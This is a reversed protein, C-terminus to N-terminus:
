SGAVVRGIRVATEGKKPRRTPMILVSGDHPAYVPTDGDWALLTGGRAISQLGTAPEVFRFADTAITVVTTIEIVTQPEPPANGLNADVFAPDLVDLHRLFRLTTERAVEPAKKEWHQGCEVLLANRPSAPDVFDRYDRLRTGAAHGGDLVVHAPFGVARALAFGKQAPGALLLPTNDELMSHIDLLYDISRYLPRLARARALEASRRPGDLVEDSWLRNFDEDVCRSAFPNAADFRLFADVNAFALSLRGRAPRVGSDLLWDVVVAGCVENGHTLAQVLVHPGPRGSDFTWAYPVGANGAAWRRVDPFSYEIPYSAM